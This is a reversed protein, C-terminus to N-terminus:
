TRAASADRIMEYVRRGDDISDFQPQRVQNGTPWNAPPQFGMPSGVGPGFTITARGNSQEKLGLSGINAYDVSQQSRRRGTRIIVLRRNTVGYVTRSRASADSFFRGIMFYIGVCMFPIGFLGFAGAASTAGITWFIAFGGWLLSFPIM